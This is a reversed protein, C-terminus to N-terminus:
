MSRLRADVFQRVYAVYESYQELTSRIANFVIRHDIDNYEHVIINRLGASPAIRQAFADPLVGYDPLRLFTDRYTLRTTREEMGTALSSIIHENVDISRSIIRELIRELAALRVNDAILSEYSEDGFLVLRALEDTILQLKREVFEARLM